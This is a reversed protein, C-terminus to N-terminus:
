LYLARFADVETLYAIVTMRRRPPRRHGHQLAVPAPAPSICSRRRGSRAVRCM